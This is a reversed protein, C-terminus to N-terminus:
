RPIPAFSVLSLLLCRAYMRVTKNRRLPDFRLQSTDAVRASGDQKGAHNGVVSREM